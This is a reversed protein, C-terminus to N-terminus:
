EGRGAFREGGWWCPTLEGLTVTKKEPYSLLIEIRGAEPDLQMMLERCAGCPPGVRGDPMVAVVRDIQHEGQTLMQFIANREACVGLTSATDVCIGTYINGKRSLIAAAVGGAEVFPSVQRGAQVARAAQYLRDWIDGGTREACLKAETDRRMQARLASLYPSFAAADEGYTQNLERELPLWTNLPAENHQLVAELKDLAKYIRAELSELADMESYLARLDAQYPQPLSAAWQDLLQRETDENAATKWFTAIDGTFAEGLDHILCMRVVKDMDAEPFEDRLFYAMLALRWSHEAVSEHRGQSTWSHRTNNKLKEALSMVELLKKIEM